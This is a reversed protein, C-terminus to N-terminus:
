MIQNVRGLASLVMEFLETPNNTCGIAGHRRSEAVHRPDRSGTYIIFPTQVEQSRLTDLLTYGARSDPPRGMDSIIVDFDQHEKVDYADVNFKDVGCVVQNVCSLVILGLVVRQLHRNFWDKNRIYYM